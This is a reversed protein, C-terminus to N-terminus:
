KLKFVINALHGIRVHLLIYYNLFYPVHILITLHFILGLTHIFLNMSYLMFWGNVVRFLMFKYGESAVKRTSGM